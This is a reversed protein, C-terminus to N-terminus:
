RLARYAWAAEGDKLTVSIREYRDGVREYLDLRRLERPTVDFLLGEVVAREDPVINRDERRYGRLRAPRTEQMRLTVIFRVVPSTLTGYVFVPHEADERLQVLAERSQRYLGGPQILFFYAGAVVAFVLTVVVGLWARRGSVKVLRGHPVIERLFM